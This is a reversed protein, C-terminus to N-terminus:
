IRRHKKHPAKSLPIHLITALRYTRRQVTYEPYHYNDSIDEIRGHLYLRDFLMNFDDPEWRRPRRYGLKRLLDDLVRTHDIGLERRSEDGTMSILLWEHLIKESIVEEDEVMKLMDQVRRPFISGLLGDPTPKSLGEPPIKGSWRSIDNSILIQPVWWCRFGSEYCLEILERMYGIVSSSPYRILANAIVFINAIFRPSFVEKGLYPTWTGGLDRRLYDNRYHHRFKQLNFFADRFSSSLVTAPLERCVKFLIVPGALLFQPLMMIQSLSLIRDTDDRSIGLKQMDMANRIKAALIPLKNMALLYKEELDDKEMWFSKAEERKEIIGLFLSMAM